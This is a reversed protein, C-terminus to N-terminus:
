FYLHKKFVVNCDVVHNKLKDDAVIIYKDNKYYFCREFNKDYNYIIKYYGEPVAIGIDGIRKPIKPYVVVNIINVKNLKVAIYRAYREAKAWTKRNVKRAQPIINALSYTAYLSKYSWDFAADPAMHGRDYGSGSYDKYEARYKEPIEREPYFYPRFKINNKNVLEGDLTYAVAKPGKYDYDYCIKFFKKDIIQNCDRNNIFQNINIAYVNSLAFFVFAMYKFLQNM